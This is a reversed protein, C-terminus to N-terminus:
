SNQQKITSININMINDFEEVEKIVTDFISPNELLKIFYYKYFEYDSDRTITPINKLDYFELLKKINKENPELAVNRVAKSLATGDNLINNDKLILNRLRVLPAYFGNLASKKYLITARNLDKTVGYGNEYIIGLYYSSVGFNQNSLKTFLNLANSHDKYFFYKIAENQLEKNKNYNELVYIANSREMDIKSNKYEISVVKYIVFFLVSFYIILIIKKHRILFIEKDVIEKTQLEQIEM